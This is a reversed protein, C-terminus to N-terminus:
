TQSEDTFQWFKLRIEPTFDQDDWVEVTALWVGNEDFAAREIETVVTPRELNEPSIYNQCVIDLQFMLSVSSKLTPAKLDM